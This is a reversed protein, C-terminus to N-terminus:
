VAAMEHYVNLYQNLIHRPAHVAAKARIVDRDYRRTYMTDDLANALDDADRTTVLQGCDGDVLEPVGGMALAVVPTGCTMAEIISLPANEAVSAVVLADAAAFYRALQSEDKIRGTFSM